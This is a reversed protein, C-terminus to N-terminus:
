SIWPMTAISDIVTPSTNNMTTDNRTITQIDGNSVRTANTIPGM